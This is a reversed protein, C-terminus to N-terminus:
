GSASDILLGRDRVASLFADVDQCATKEDFAFQDTLRSVLQERTSGQVLEPWLVAGTRNVAFYTADRLDLFVVEGDVDRWEVRDSRLRISEAM